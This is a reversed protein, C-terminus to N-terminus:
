AKDKKLLYLKSYKAFKSIAIAASVMFGAYGDLFGLRLIYVRLFTVFPYLVVHILFSVGKGKKYAEEASITSFSNFKELLGALSDFSYHLLDGKLRGVTAGSNMQVVEHVRDPAWGGKDRKWLRIKRDPYWGCYRIWRGCFNTRRNFEFADSSFNNKIALISAKLEDSLVEDADLSLIYDYTALAVAKNKQSGYGEFVESHFRVGHRKCIEATADTSYSDLVIIEDAVSLLSEICRAINKEENFTIVVASIKIGSM